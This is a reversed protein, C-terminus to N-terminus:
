AKKRNSDEVVRFFIKLSNHSKQTGFLYKGEIMFGPVNGYLLCLALKVEVNFVSRPPIISDFETLFNECDAISKKNLRELASRTQELIQLAHSGLLIFKCDVCQWKASEDTFDSPILIGNSCNRCKLGSAFTGMETADTCRCCDCDFCKAEKIQHRREITTKLPHSYSITITEGKKINVSSILRLEMNSDVFHKTNSVCDHSIMAATLYIGRAKIQPLVIDFSNTDLIGAIQLIEAETIETFKLFNRIFPVLNVKLAAYLKTEIREKLHSVLKTIEQHTKPNSRKLLLVRLPAIVCYCAEIKPKGVNRISCKFNKEKMLRCEDVHWLSSECGEGCVPWSCKSCKYFDGSAPPAMTKHCGLCIVVSSTKPGIISPAERM